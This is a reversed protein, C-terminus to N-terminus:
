SPLLRTIMRCSVPSIPLAMWHESSPNNAKFNDTKSPLSFVPYFIGMAIVIVILATYFISALGRLEHLMVAVAFAAAISLLIWAQYYFKFVTNIRYGFNDRLYFFEPGLILLTGLSILLLAFASPHLHGAHNKTRPTIM